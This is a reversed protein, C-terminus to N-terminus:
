SVQGNSSSRSLPSNRFCPRVTLSEGLGQFTRANSAAAGPRSIVRSDIRLSSQSESIWTSKSCASLKQMRSTRVVRPSLGLLGPVDFGKRPAAVPEDSRCVRTRRFRRLCLRRECRAISRPLELSVLVVLARSFAQPLGTLLRQLFRALAELAGEFDQGSIRQRMGSEAGSRRKATQVPSMRVVKVRRFQM